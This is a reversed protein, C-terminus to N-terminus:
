KNKGDGNEDYVTFIYQFFIFLTNGKKSHLLGFGPLNLKNSKNTHHNNKQKNEIFIYIQSTAQKRPQIHSNQFKQNPM